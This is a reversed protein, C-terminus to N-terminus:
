DGIGCSSVSLHLQHLSALSPKISSTARPLVPTGTSPDAIRELQVAKGPLHAAVPV